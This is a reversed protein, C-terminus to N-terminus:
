PCAVRRLFHRRPSLSSIGGARWCQNAMKQAGSRISVSDPAAGNPLFILTLVTEAFDAHGKPSPV